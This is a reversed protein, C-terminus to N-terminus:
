DYTIRYELFEEESPIKFPRVIRFGVFAADTFWWKSRPFQPDRQKWVPKSYDRSASRLKIINDRFSGGRIVAPFETHAKEFDNDRNVYADEHYQDLTWESVNGYIDYLGWPNPEKQGVKHYSGNSNKNFWAYKDMLSVNEGFFYPSNNGASAAYEWEAETPLRYYYGTIASLWECFKSAALQTINVVPLGEETGMGLSMDVYPITAGSIADVMTNVEQGKQSIEIHDISRQLFLNYLEWTIEYSSMWFGQIEVELEPGEDDDRGVESNPSGLKLNGSPIAVMNIKLESGPLEQSYDTKQQATILSTEIMFIIVLWLTKYLM